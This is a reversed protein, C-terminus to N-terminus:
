DEEVADNTDFIHPRCITFEIMENPDVGFQAAALTMMEEFAALFDASFVAQTDAM